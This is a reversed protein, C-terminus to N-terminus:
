KLIYKSKLLVTVIVTMNCAFMNTRDTLKTEPEEDTKNWGCTKTFDVMDYGLGCINFCTFIHHIYLKVRM